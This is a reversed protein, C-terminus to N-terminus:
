RFDQSGLQPSSTNKAQSSTTRNTDFSKILARKVEVKLTSTIAVVKYMIINLLQLQLYHLYM